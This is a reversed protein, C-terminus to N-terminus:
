FGSRVSSVIPPMNKLEETPSQTDGLPKLIYHPSRYLRLPFLIRLLIMMPARNFYGPLQLDTRLMRDAPFKPLGM